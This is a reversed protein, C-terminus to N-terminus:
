CCAPASLFYAQLDYKTLFKLLHRKPQIMKTGLKAFRVIENKYYRPGGLSCNAYSGMTDLIVSSIVDHYSKMHTLVNKLIRAYFFSFTMFLMFSVLAPILLAHELKM